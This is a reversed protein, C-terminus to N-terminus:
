QYISEKEKIFLRDELIEFAEDVISKSGFKKHGVALCVAERFKMAANLNKCKARKPTKM